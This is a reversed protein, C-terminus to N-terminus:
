LALITKTKTASTAQAPVFVVCGQQPQNLKKANEWPLENRAVRPQCGCDRQSQCERFVTAAVGNPNAIGFGLPIGAYLGPNGDAAVRPLAHFVIGVRFPNRRNRFATSASKGCGRQPQNLKKASEWPLETRAVRPQCGCDRQSQGCGPV